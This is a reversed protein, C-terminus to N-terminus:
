GDVVDKGHGPAGIARDITIKFKSSLMLLLWVATGCHYQKCCGYTEEFIIRWLRGKVKLDSILVDIHANTTSSDQRSVNSFHSICEFEQELAAVDLNGDKYEKLLEAIHFEVSSGEM